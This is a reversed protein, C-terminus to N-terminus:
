QRTARLIAGQTGAIYVDGSSSSGSISLVKGQTGPNLKKWVAGDFRVVFGRPVGASDQAVGGAYLDGESSGWM